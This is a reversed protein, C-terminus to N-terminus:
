GNFTASITADGSVVLEGPSFYVVNPQGAVIPTTNLGLEFKYVIHTGLSYVFVKNYKQGQECSPLPGCFGFDKQGSATGQINVDLEAGAPVPAAVTVVFTVAALGPATPGPTESPNTTTHSSSTFTGASTASSSASAGCGTVLTVGPVILALAALRHASRRPCAVPQKTTRSM